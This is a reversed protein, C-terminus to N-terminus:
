SQLEVLRDNDPRAIYTLLRVSGFPRGLKAYHDDLLLGENKRVRLGLVHFAFLKEVVGLLAGVGITSALKPLKDLARFSTSSNRFKLMTLSVFGLDVTAEAVTDIQDLRQGSLEIEVVLEIEHGVTEITVDIAFM